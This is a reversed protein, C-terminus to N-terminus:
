LKSWEIRSFLIIPPTQLLWVLRNTNWNSVSDELQSLILILLQVNFYWTKNRKVTLSYPYSRTDDVNSIATM